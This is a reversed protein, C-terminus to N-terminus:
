AAKYLCSREDVFWIETINYNQHSFIGYSCIIKGGALKAEQEWM